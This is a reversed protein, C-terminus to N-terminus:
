CKNYVNITLFINKYSLVRKEILHWSLYGFFTSILISYFMLTFLNLNFFYMLTQQIPFGYIYIGYSADGMEGFSTIYKLPMLGILIILITLVLHKSVNYLNFYLIIILFISTVILIFSKYKFDEIKLSALFSGGIFFTGLNIFHYGSIGFKSIQNLWIDFFNYLIVMILFLLFLLISVLRRKNIIILLVSLLVYFSFEYCITWLSGNIAYRYPNNKFINEINYQLNFLSINRPIYTYVARNNLYPISSEYVFPALLITLVLVVFLGPFLRLIRKWYFVIVNKSRDLSQFILYGSLIFFGNLGLSSFEIQSNTLKLLWQTSLDSGSLPYSHSIVVLLAFSFRLFDFNNERM